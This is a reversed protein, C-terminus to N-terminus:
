LSVISNLTVNFNYNLKEAVNVSRIVKWDKLEDTFHPIVLGSKLAAATYFTQRDPHDEACANYIHGFASKEIIQLTIGICDTLHILNVPAKGNPIDTKGAFFRGPNREPGILGAFRIITSNFGPNETLCLEATLMAKGSDTDPNPITYENVDGNCDGYVSTSSIFIVEPIKYLSANQAIRSIKSLFTHQEATSRKPPISIILVECDFFGAETDEENEQFNILYPTIGSKQLIALKEPTTTSGKVTYQDEVLKKALELGYWGCGLVSIKRNSASM